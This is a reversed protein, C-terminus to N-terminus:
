EKGLLERSDKEIALMFRDRYEPNVDWGMASLGLNFAARITAGSGLFPVLVRTTPPVLTRLIEEILAVPRETPHIKQAPTLGGYHFVNLRGQQMILPRGKRAMFFPEYARGLYLEPQLTQGQSKVWIAPIDDVLWGAEKLAEKVETFWTPGFWFVLWCNFSAVRFLERALRTLFERYSEAPVENYSHVLNGVTDKSSKVENLNIGYPPDCEILGVRGNSPFEALGQFTDGIVYSKEAVRIADRVGTSYYTNDPDSQRARLESVIVDEELNKLTKLADDATAMAALEPIADCANALQIARSVNAVSKDLLEATKRGSWEREKSKYLQDIDRILRAKEAWEFDKRAINELLEVERADIEGSEDRILVPIQTLGAIGAATLRREGALLRFNTDVTIPQIVGKERISQALADLDGLAKRYRNDCKIESISIISVRGQPIGDQIPM